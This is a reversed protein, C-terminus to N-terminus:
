EADEDECGQADNRNAIADGTGKLEDMGPTPQYMDEDWERIEIGGSFPKWGADHRVALGLIPLLDLLHTRGRPLKM